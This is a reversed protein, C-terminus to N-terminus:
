ARYTFIFALLQSSSLHVSVAENELKTICRVERFPRLKPPHTSTDAISDLLTWAFAAYHSPNVVETWTELFRTICALSFRFSFVLTAGITEFLLDFFGQRDFPGFAVKDYAWDNELMANIDEFSKLGGLSVLIARNFKIYGEKSLFGDNTFKFFVTWLAQFIDKLGPNEEVFVRRKQILEKSAQSDTTSVQKRLELINKEILNRNDVTVDRARLMTQLSVIKRKIERRSLPRDPLEAM